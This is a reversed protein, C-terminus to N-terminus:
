NKAQKVQNDLNDFGSVLMIEQTLKAIEGALLAKQVCDGADSAEYHELMKEDGFNMNECAEVILLAGLKLEDIEAGFSAQKQLSQITKSDVAKVVLSVGLRKIEVEKTINRDASLFAQLADM